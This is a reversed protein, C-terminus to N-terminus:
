NITTEGGRSSCPITSISGAVKTLAVTSASPSSAAATLGGTTMAGFAMWAGFGAAVVVGTLLLTVVRATFRFIM